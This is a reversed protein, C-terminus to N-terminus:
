LSYSVKGLLNLVLKGKEKCLEGGTGRIKGLNKRKRMLEQNIKERKFEELDQTLMNIGWQDGKYYGLFELKLSSKHPIALFYSSPLKIEERM